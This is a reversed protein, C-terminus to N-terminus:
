LYEEYDEEYPSVSIIINKHYLPESWNDMIFKYVQKRWKVDLEDEDYDEGHFYVNIYDDDETEIEFVLHGDGRSFYNFNKGKISNLEFGGEGINIKNTEIFGLESMTKIVTEVYENEEDPADGWDDNPNNLIEREDDTISDVGYKNLKDLIRDVYEQSRFNKQESLMNKILKVLDSESLRVVKKM